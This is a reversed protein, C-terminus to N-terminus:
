EFVCHFGNAELLIESAIIDRFHSLINEKSVPMSVLSVTFYRYIWTQLLHLMIRVQVLIFPLAVGGSPADGSGYLQENRRVLNQLCVYKFFSEYPECLMLYCLLCILKLVNFFSAVFIM